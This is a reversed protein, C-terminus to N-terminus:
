KKEGLCRYVPLIHPNEAYVEGCIGISPILHEFGLLNNCCYFMYLGDFFFFIVQLSKLFPKSLIIRVIFSM